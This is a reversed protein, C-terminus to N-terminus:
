RHSGRRSPGLPAPNITVGVKESIEELTKWDVYSQPIIIIGMTSYGRVERFVEQVLKFTEWYKEQVQIRTCMKQEGLHAIEKQASKRM